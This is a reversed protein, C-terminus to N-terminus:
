GPQDDVSGLVVTTAWAHALNRGGADVLGAESWVRRGKAGSWRAVVQHPEGAAPLADIHVALEGTVAATGPPLDRYAASIAPCDLAAWVMWAAVTGDPGTPEPVWPTACYGSGPDRGAHLGLSDPRAETSGCAFCTNYSPDAMDEHRSAWDEAAAVLAVDTLLPFPEIERDGLERVLAVATGGADVIEVGGDAPRAVLEADLPPPLLLRVSAARPSGILEAFRGSAVGGHASEAPGNYRREILMANGRM